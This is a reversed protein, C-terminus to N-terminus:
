IEWSFWAKHVGVIGVLGHSSARMARWPTWRSESGVGGAWLYMHGHYPLPFPPCM